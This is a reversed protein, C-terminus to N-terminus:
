SQRKVSLWTASETMKELLDVIVFFLSFRGGAPRQLL